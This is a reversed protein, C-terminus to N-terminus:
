SGNIEIIKWIKETRSLGRISFGRIRHDAQLIYVCVCVCVCM